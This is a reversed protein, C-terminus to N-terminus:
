IICRRRRNAKAYAPLCGLLVNSVSHRQDFACKLFNIKFRGLTILRLQVASGEATAIMDAEAIEISNVSLAGIVIHRVSTQKHARSDEPGDLCLAAAGYESHEDPTPAEGPPAGAAPLTPPVALLTAQYSQRLVM